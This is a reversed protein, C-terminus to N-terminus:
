RGRDGQPDSRFFSAAQISDNWVAFALPVEIGGGVTMWQSSIPHGSETVTWHQDVSIRAKIGRWVEYKIGGGVTPGAVVGSFAPTSRGNFYMSHTAAFMGGSIYPEIGYGVDVGKAVRLYGGQLQDTVTSYSGERCHERFWQQGHQMVQTYTDDSVWNGGAMVQGWHRYGAEVSWLKTWTRDDGIFRYGVGGGYALSTGDFESGHPIRDQKWTGDVSPRAFRAQLLDGALYWEALAPESVLVIGWLIAVALILKSM